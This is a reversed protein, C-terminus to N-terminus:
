EYKKLTLQHRSVEEVILETSVKMFSALSGIIIVISGIFMIIFGFILSSIDPVKGTFVGMSGMMKSGIMGFGIFFIIWGVIWWMISYVIVKFAAGM